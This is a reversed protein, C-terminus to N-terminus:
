RCFRARLRASSIEEPIAPLSIEEPFMADSARCGRSFSNGASRHILRTRTTPRFFHHSVAFPVHLYRQACEGQLDISPRMM